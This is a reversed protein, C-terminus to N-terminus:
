FESFVKVLEMNKKRVGKCIKFRFENFDERKVLVKKELFKMKWM